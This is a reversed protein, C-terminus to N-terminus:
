SNPRNSAELVSVIRREIEEYPARGKWFDYLHGARDFVFCAPLAGNWQPSLTNIFAQDNGTEIVYTRFDVGHEALFRRAPSLQDDFDASILMLRLGRSRYRDRLRLLDPFEERCPDCWSAWVNVLVAEGGSARVTDLLAAVRLPVINVAATDLTTTGAAPSSGRGGATGHGAPSKSCSAVCVALAIVAPLRVVPNRM